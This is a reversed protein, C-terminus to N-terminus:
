HHAPKEVIVTTISDANNQLHPDVTDATEFLAQTKVKVVNKFPRAAPDPTLVLKSVVTQGAKLSSYECNPSDPSIGLDCIEEVFKLQAPWIFATDVFFADDPGHNTMRVTYTINQGVRVQNRDAVISVSIDSGSRAALATTSTGVLLTVLCLIGIVNIFFRLHKTLTHM